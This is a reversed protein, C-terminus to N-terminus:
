GKEDIFPKGVEEDGNQLPEKREVIGIGQGTGGAYSPSHRKPVARHFISIRRGYNRHQAM